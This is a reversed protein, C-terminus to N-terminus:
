AVFMVSTSVAPGATCSSEWDTLRQYRSVKLRSHNFATITLTLPIPL